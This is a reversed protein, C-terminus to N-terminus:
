MVIGCLQFITSTEKSERFSGDPAGYKEADQIIEHAWAPRRKKTITEAPRQPEAMDHDEPGHEEPVVDNGVDSDAVRPAEPEEDHIEDTHHQRSRSFTADEDFTVDRSIEIQRYGPIYVRYAKSTESYGVFVGKKGSPDLKSRKDKPVHVYVPCGFIQLHSVEPKEGTFMEEPTKNGLARHPSKNQVYVVTRTAEAWLHMPLDQDHIMAKVAEMITRNKREAVGNQQPNYPTSLERKIGVERCFAKFDDSTFEGGNDSRLIKIKRESLNEVLAKFEKFKSFVEGKSKLFYIWTKRSFDDIFSVYYVYGSLSTTSMPGCVDSHVIDLVGKAKNDSSPFPNKMNKGQACGKCTGEHDVQIEPLGTVMKSVIPLAKYHLHTFRRHWLESPNVTNHVLTSDSHGKLKYLGGEQVGIVIADDLTKGRPWMLVEGDIFTVRFGKEELASISLLNKKLSPVYLVDKIKLPKGSDLKYSTEGVGKIPYQYDDGLKVKHPSDKQVLDSLSDKYGTMHKSAGSDVLWTDSGHTITGTLASILVHEESSDYDKTRKQAPEDDEVVHAHHRKNQGKRAQEKKLPCNRAIHGMKQCCYCKYSSYDKQSKRSRQFKKPPHDEKRSKGKRAHVALAQDDNGLKEERAALRAEEQTCDEWLRNFKTLKRRSCIGQIFSEWSKPLGNLTTMVLEAEEVTDGIAELQEKIQSVRTFYSQITESNQMKVNKLQTRLTMKRNINKGEYLRSLADFMQKPTKLSSVHPILHDKISDAIIRKAKVLNKKHKAKAEDGEPEAVEEEIFGELDNEELILMVRYKWAQFNDAGELKEDLKTSITM